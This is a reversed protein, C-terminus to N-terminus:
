DAALRDIALELRVRPDLPVAARQVVVLLAKLFECDEFVQRPIDRTRSGTPVTSPQEVDVFGNRVSGRKMRAASVIAGFVMASVATTVSTRLAVSPMPRRMSTGSTTSTPTSAPWPDSLRRDSTQ